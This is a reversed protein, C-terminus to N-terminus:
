EITTEGEASTEEPTSEVVEEDADVEIETEGEDATEEPNSEIVDIAENEIAEIEVNEEPMQPLIEEEVVVIEPEQNNNYQKAFFGLAVLAAIFLAIYFLKKM